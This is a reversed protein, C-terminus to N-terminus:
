AAPVGYRTRLAAAEDHRGLAALADASVRAARAIAAPPAAAAERAALATEALALADAARGDLLAFAAANERISTTSPHTEGFGERYITLAREFMPRAVDREGLRVLLQALNNLGLGTDTHRPGRVREKIALARELHPRAAALEGQGHLLTGLNNLDIATRIHDPGVTKEDIALAREYLGRAADLDGLRKLCLALNNTAAATDEHEPGKVRELISLARELLARGAALDGQDSVVSALNNLSKATIEHDPGLTTEAVALSREFFVRAAALDALAGHRYSALLDLLGALADTQAGEVGVTGEALALAHPDLRRWRPWATSDDFNSTHHAADGVARVLADLIPKPDVDLRAVQRILRHLRFSATTLSADREDAVTERDILAFAALAALAEDLGDGALLDKLPEDLAERGERFLFLPIPDASLFAAHRLLPGAAAHLKSAEAIALGYTKAVTLGDHYAAPAHRTDDLLKAPQAELRAHYDALSVSLRECYAAAQEHALPLGGLAESLHEAAGRDGTDGSRAMLFEAGIEKSWLAIEVPEAVGRWAHFTTTILVHADGRRPLYPRVEEPSMVNDFILLIGDGEAALRELVLPLAAAEQADDAVWGLRVGLAVLDARMGQATQARVWWAIRYRDRRREAFAVAATTKGAGRPGHLAAVAVRGDSRRLARDIADIEADRGLFHTPVHITINTTQASTAAPKSALPKAPEPPVTERGAEVPPGTDFAPEASPASPPRVGELLLAKAEDRSKGNLSIYSRTGFIKPLTCPRVKVFILRAAKGEIDQWLMAARELASFKAQPKLYDPSAVCVMAECDELAETMWQAIDHGAGLEWKAFRVAYGADRLTWAVWEAKAQDASNYSLFYDAM